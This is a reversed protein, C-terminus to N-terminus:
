VQQRATLRSWVEPNVLSRPRRGSLALLTDEAAMQGARLLTQPSAGAIHPTLIVNDMGFLPHDAPLPEPETVDLAAAGVRGSQLAAVLAESDVTGGRSTNVLLAGPRFHVLRDADIINRTAPTLPCHVSVVDCDPLMENLDSRLEVGIREAEVWDAYPDYALTKMGFGVTCIRSVERATYGLGILGLTKGALLEPTSGGTRASWYDGTRALRDAKVINRTSALMLGVAHEAVSRYNNGAASVVAVGRDTAAAIDIRDTGASPVFVVQLRPAADLLEASVSMQGDIGIGCLADATPLLKSMSAEFATRDAVEVDFGREASRRAVDEGLAWVLEVGGARLVAEAGGILISPVLVRKRSRM